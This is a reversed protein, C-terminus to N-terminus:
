MAPARVCGDVLTKRVRTRETASYFSDLYSRAQKRYGATMDPVWDYLAM